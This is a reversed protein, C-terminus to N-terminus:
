YGGDSCNKMAVALKRLFLYEYFTIFNKKDMFKFVDDLHNYLYKLSTIKGKIDITVCTSLGQKDLLWDASTECVRFPVIFEKYFEEYESDSIDGSMDSDM